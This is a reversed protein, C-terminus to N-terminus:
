RTAKGYMEGYLMEKVKESDAKIRRGDLMLRSAEEILYPEEPGSMSLNSVVIEAPGFEPKKQFATFAVTCDLVRIDDIEIQSLDKGAVAIEANRIEVDRVIMQSNEGASLGKDGVHNIFVNSVEIVSGSVDIGDNGCRYFACNDIKGQAFDGDFADSMTHEFVSKEMTFNSHIVNLGDESHNKRFLSNSIHVPSKYFTVAGTLTWGFKNPHSLHEFEVYHLASLSEANLVVVGQGSSDSSFIRIPREEEGRFDVPSRSLLLASNILDLEIGPGSVVTYGAPIIVPADVTWRGPRIRIIKEAEDVSLFGQQKFNPAQHIPPDTFEVDPARWHFVQEKRLDSCGLIRYSVSLNEKIEPPLETLPLVPLSLAEYRVLATPLKGPVIRREKLRSVLSDGCTIAVIEVPLPQVTGVKIRVEGREHQELYAHFAKIPNLHKEITERNKHMIDRYFIFDRFESYLINLFRDTDKSLGALLDDLYEPQTVRQLHHLYRANFEHDKFLAKGFDYFASTKSLEVTRWIQQIETGAQGDFAIPELLGTIPNYYFRLNHYFQMHQAGLLDSVAYYKALRDLDFVEAPSLRGQRFQELRSSAFLFQQTLTSDDFTKGAKFVDIYSSYYATHPEMNLVGRARQQWLLDENFKLIPGERRRNHEILRKEFHEELAYVGLDKGNLTVKLFDYRLSLVDERELARHWIWEYIYNRTQPHQLSFRKMGSLTKNGKVKVRFSWKDGKLHDTWDGKLRMEVKITEDQYRIKAPVYDDSNTLLVGTQMAVKRKYALRQYDMHKLDITIHQPDALFGSVLQRLFVNRYQKVQQKAAFVPDAQLEGRYLYYGTGLLGVLIAVVSLLSKRYTRLRFRKRSDKIIM